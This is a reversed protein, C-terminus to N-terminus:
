QTPGSTATVLKVGFIHCCEGRAACDCRWGSDSHWGAFYIQGSGRVTAAIGTPTVVTLVIRGEAAYRRGKAQFDERPM